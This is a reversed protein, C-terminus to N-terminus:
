LSRHMVALQWGAPEFGLRRYFRLARDNSEQTNVWLREADRRRAWHLSDAVLASGIGQGQDARAVALRQLFGTRGGLGTVAYAIVTGNRRIVRYRSLPTARRSERLGHRDLRWFEDFTECDVTLVGRTDSRRGRRVGTSRPPFSSLGALDHSLVCLREHEAFGGDLLADRVAPEVASTYAEAFGKRRLHERLSALGAATLAQAESPIVLQAADHRDHRRCFRFRAAGAAFLSMSM